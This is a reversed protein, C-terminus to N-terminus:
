EMSTLTLCLRHMFEWYHVETLKIKCRRLLVGENKKNLCFVAYSIQSHSSNLRTSKRDELSEAYGPAYWATLQIIDHGTKAQAEFIPLADHLSLTYIGTTTADNMCLGYVDAIAALKYDKRNNM